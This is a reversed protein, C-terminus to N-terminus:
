IQVYFICYTILAAICVTSLGIKIIVDLHSTKTVEDLIAPLRDDYYGDHNPDYDPQKKGLSSKTAAVKKAKPMPTVKPKTQKSAAKLPPATLVKTMVRPAPAEEAVEEYEEEDEVDDEYDEYYSEEEPNDEEDEYSEEEDEFDYSEEAEM